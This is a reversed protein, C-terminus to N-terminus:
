TVNDAHVLLAAAYSIQLNKVVRVALATPLSRLVEAAQQEQMGELTRSATAPDQEFFKITLPLFSNPKEM